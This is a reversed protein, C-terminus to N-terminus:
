GKPRPILCRNVGIRKGFIVDRIEEATAPLPPEIVHKLPRGRGRKPPEAVHDSHPGSSGRVWGERIKRKMMRATSQTVGVDRHLKLLSVGKCNMSMVHIGFVWKRLSVKSGEMVTGTKVSFYKRCGGCHYPMPKGGPAPKTRESGCRPCARRDGWCAVELWERAAEDPFLEMLRVLGIGESGAKGVAAM